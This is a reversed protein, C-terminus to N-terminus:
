FRSIYWIMSKQLEVYMEYTRTWLVFTEWLHPSSGFRLSTPPTPYPLPPQPTLPVTSPMLLPVSFLLCTGRPKLLLCSPHGSILSSLSYSSSLLDRWPIRVKKVYSVVPNTSRTQKPVGPDQVLHTLSSVCQKRLSCTICLFSSHRRPIKDPDELYHIYHRMYPPFQSFCSKFTTNPLVRSSIIM